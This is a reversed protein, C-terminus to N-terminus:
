VAELVSALTMNLACSQIMSTQVANLDCQDQDVPSAIEFVYYYVAGGITILKASVSKLYEKDLVISDFLKFGLGQWKNQVCYDFVRM